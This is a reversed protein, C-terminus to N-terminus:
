NLIQLHGISAAIQAQQALSTAFSQTNFPEPSLSLATLTVLM